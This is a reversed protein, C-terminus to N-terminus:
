CSQVCFFKKVHDRNKAEVMDNVLAWLHNDDYEHYDKPLLSDGFSFSMCLRWAELGAKAPYSGQPLLENFNIM